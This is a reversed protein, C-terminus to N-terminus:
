AAVPQGNSITGEKTGERVINNLFWHNEFLLYIEEVSVEKTEPLLFLVFCILVIILGGFLLL